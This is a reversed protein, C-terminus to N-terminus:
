PTRGEQGPATRHWRQTHSRPWPCSSRFLRALQPVQRGPECSRMSPRFTVPHRNWPSFPSTSPQTCRRPTSEGELDWALRCPMRGHRSEHPRSPRDCQHERSRITWIRQLQSGQSTPVIAHKHHLDCFRRGAALTDLGPTHSLVLAHTRARTGDPLVSQGSLVHM